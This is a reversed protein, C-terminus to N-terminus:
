HVQFISYQNGIDKIKKVHNSQLFETITELSNRNCFQENLYNQDIVLFQIKKAHLDKTFRDPSNLDLNPYHMYTNKNM